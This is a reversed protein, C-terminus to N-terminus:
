NDLKQQRREHLIRLVEISEEAVRFYVRYRGVPIRLVDENIFPVPKASMPFRVILDLVSDIERVTRDAASVNDAAIYNWIDLLDQEAAHTWQISLM